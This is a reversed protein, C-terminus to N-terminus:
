IAVCLTCQGCQVNLYSLSFYCSNYQHAILQIKRATSYTCYKAQNLCILMWSRPKMRTQTPRRQMMSTRPVSKKVLFCHHSSCCYWRPYWHHYSCPHQEWQWYWQVPDTGQSQIWKTETGHNVYKIRGGPKSWFWLSWPPSASGRLNRQISLRRKQFRKVAPQLVASSLLWGPLVM